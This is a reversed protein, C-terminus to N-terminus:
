ISAKLSGLSLSLNVMDAWDHGIEDRGAQAKAPQSNWGSQPCPSVHSIKPNGGTIDLFRSSGHKSLEM